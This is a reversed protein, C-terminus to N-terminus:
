PEGKQELRETTDDIEEEVSEAVLALLLSVALGPGDGSIGGVGVLCAVALLKVKVTVQVMTLWIIFELQVLNEITEEDASAEFDLFLFEPFGAVM